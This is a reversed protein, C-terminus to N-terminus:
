FAYSHSTNTILSFEPGYTSIHKFTNLSTWQPLCKQTRKHSDAISIAIDPMAQQRRAHLGVPSSDVTIENRKGPILSPCSKTEYCLEKWIMSITTLEGLEMAYKKRILARLTAALSFSCNTQTDPSSKELKATPQCKTSSPGEQPRQSLERQTLFTAM